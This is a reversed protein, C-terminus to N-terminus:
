EYGFLKSKKKIKLLLIKSSAEILVYGKQDYLGYTRELCRMVRGSSLM